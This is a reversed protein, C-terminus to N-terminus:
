DDDSDETTSKLVARIDAMNVSVLRRRWETYCSRNCFWYGDRRVPWEYFDITRSCNKCTVAPMARETGM